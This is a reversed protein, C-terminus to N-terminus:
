LSVRIKFDSAQFDLSILGKSKGHDPTSFLAFRFSFPLSLTECQHRSSRRPGDDDM